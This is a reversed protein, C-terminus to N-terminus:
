PSVVIGKVPSDLYANNQARNNPRVVRLDSMQNRGRHPDPKRPQFGLAKSPPMALSLECGLSAHSSIRFGLGSARSPPQPLLGMPAGLRNMTATGTWDTAECPAYFVPNLPM